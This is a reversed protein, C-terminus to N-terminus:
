GKGSPEKARGCFIFFKVILDACQMAKENDSSLILMDRGSGFGQVLHTREPSRCLVSKAFGRNNM